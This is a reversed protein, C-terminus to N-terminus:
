HRPRAAATTTAAARDDNEAKRKATQSAPRDDVDRFPALFLDVLWSRGQPAVALATSMTVFPLSAFDLSLPSM